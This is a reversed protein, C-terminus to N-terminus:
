DGPIRVPETMRDLHWQGDEWVADWLWDGVRLQSESAKQVTRAGLEYRHEADEAYARAAQQFEEASLATRARTSLMAYAAHYQGRQLCGLYSQGVMELTAATPPKRAPPPPSRDVLLGVLLWAVLLVPVLAMPRLRLRRKFARARDVARLDLPRASDVYLLGASLPVCLAAQSAAEPTDQLLVPSQEEHARAALRTAFPTPHRDPGARALVRGEPTLLFAQRAQLSALLDALSSDQALLQPNRPM